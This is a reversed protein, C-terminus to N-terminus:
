ECKSSLISHEEMLLVYNKLVSVLLLDCINDLIDSSM